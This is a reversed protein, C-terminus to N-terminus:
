SLFYLISHFGNGRVDSILTPLHLIVGKGFKGVYGEIYVGEVSRYGRAISSHHFRYGFDELHRRVLDFRVNLQEKTNKM